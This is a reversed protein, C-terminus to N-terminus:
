SWSRVEFRHGAATPLLLSSLATFQASGILGPIAGLPAEVRLQRLARLAWLRGFRRPLLYVPGAALDFSEHRYPEVHDRQQIHNPVIRGISLAPENLSRTTSHIRGPRKLRDYFGPERVVCWGSLKAPSDIGHKVAIFSETATTSQESDTIAERVRQHLRVLRRGHAISFREELIYGFHEGRNWRWSITGYKEDIAIFTSPQM